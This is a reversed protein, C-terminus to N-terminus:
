VSDRNEEKLEKNILDSELKKSLLQTVKGALNNRKDDYISVTETKKHRSFSAVSRIDGNTLDLALTISAHRSTHFNKPPINHAIALKRFSRGLSSPYLREFIRATIRLILSCTHLM